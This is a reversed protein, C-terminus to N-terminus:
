FRSVDTTVSASRGGGASDGKVDGDLSVGVWVVVEEVQRTM